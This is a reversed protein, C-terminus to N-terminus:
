TQIELCTQKGYLATTELACVNVNSVFKRFIEQSGVSYVFDIRFVKSIKKFYIGFYHNPVTKNRFLYTETALTFAAQTSLIVSGTKIKRLTQLSFTLGSIILVM